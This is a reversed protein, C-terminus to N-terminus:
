LMGNDACNITGRAFGTAVGAGIVSAVSGEKFDAMDPIFVPALLAPLVGLENECALTAEAKLGGQHRCCKHRALM